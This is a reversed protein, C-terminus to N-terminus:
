AYVNEFLEEHDPEPSEEAFKVADDVIRSIEKDIEDLVQQTLMGEDLLYDRMKPVPDRREWEQIEEKTRYAGPDAVSHGRFRYTVAEIFRPERDRRAMRVARDAAERVTLLDMGDVSEVEMDYCMARRFLQPIASARTVATGMGYLNNECVYIVPLRWLSALNLSEHFAGENVAGDGFFCLVVQDTERYNVAFGMGAALPMGGGVIGHGGMFNHEVDFMHMSGGKGRSIGTRKGFLEAMVRRPEAGRALAQGHERYAGIVYDDPRLASIFGVAVAEQGIYLHLFGGIKGVKYMEGARDEFKRILVMQRYMEILEDKEM